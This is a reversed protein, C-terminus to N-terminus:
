ARLGLQKRAATTSRSTSGALLRLQETLTDTKPEPTGDMKPLTDRYYDRM